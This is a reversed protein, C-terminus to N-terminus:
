SLTQLTKSDVGTKAALDYFEKLSRGNLYNGTIEGIKKVIDDTRKDIMDAKSMLYTLHDKYTETVEDYNHYPDTLVIADITTRREKISRAKQRLSNIISKQKAADIETTDTEDYYEKKFAEPSMKEMSDLMDEITSYKGAQTRTNVFEFFSDDKSNLYGFKDDNKLAANAETTNQQEVILQNIGAKMSPTIM